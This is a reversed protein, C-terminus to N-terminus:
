YQRPSGLENGLGSGYGGDMGRRAGRSRSSAVSSPAGPGGFDCGASAGVPARHTSAQSGAYPPGVPPLGKLSALLTAPSDSHGAGPTRARRSSASSSLVSPARMSRPTAPRPSAHAPAVQSGGALPGFGDFPPMQGGNPMPPYGVSSAISPAGRAPTQPRASTPFPLHSSYSVESPMRSVSPPLKRHSPARSSPTSRTTSQSVVSPARRSLAAYQQASTMTPLPPVVQSGVRSRSTYRSSISPAVSTARSSPRPLSRARTDDRRRETKDTRGRERSKERREERERERSKEGRRSEGDDRRSKERRGEREGSRNRRSSKSEAPLYVNYTTYNNNNVVQGPQLIVLPPLPQQPYGPATPFGVQAQMQPQMGHHSSGRSSQVDSTTRSRPSFLRSIVSSKKPTAM